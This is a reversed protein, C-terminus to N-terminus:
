ERESDEKVLILEYAKSNRTPFFLTNWKVQFLSPNPSFHLLEKKLNAMFKLITTPLFSPALVTPYTATSVM